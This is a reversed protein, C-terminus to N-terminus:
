SANADGGDDILTTPAFSPHDGADMGRSWSCAPFDFPLHLYSFSLHPDFTYNATRLEWRNGVSYQRIM